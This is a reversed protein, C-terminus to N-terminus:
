SSSVLDDFSDLAHQSRNFQRQARHHTTPHSTTAVTFTATPM